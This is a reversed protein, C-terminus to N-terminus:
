HFKKTDVYQPADMTCLYFLKKELYPYKILSSNFRNALIITKPNTSHNTVDNMGSGIDILLRSFTTTMTTKTIYM